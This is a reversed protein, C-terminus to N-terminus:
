EGLQTRLEAHLTWLEDMPVAGRVRKAIPTKQMCLPPCFAESVWERILDIGPEEREILEPLTRKKLM